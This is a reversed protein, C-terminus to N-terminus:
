LLETPDEYMNPSVLGAVGYNGRPSPAPAYTNPGGLFAQDYVGVGRGGGQVGGGRGVGQATAGGRGGGKDNVHSPPSLAVMGYDPTGISPTARLPTSGAAGRGEPLTGYGDVDGAEGKGVKAALAEARYQQLLASRTADENFSSAATRGNDKANRDGGGAAAGDAGGELTALISDLEAEASAASVVPPRDKEREKKGDRGRRATDATAYVPVQASSGPAHGSLVNGYPTHQHHHHGLDSPSSPTAALVRSRRRSMSRSRRNESAGGAAHTGRHSLSTSTGSASGRTGRLSRYVLIWGALLICSVVILIAIVLM